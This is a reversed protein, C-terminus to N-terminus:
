SCLVFNGQNNRTVRNALFLWDLSLVFLPMSINSDKRCEAFLDALDAEGITRLVRLIVAGNFFLSNKPHVNDPLLM